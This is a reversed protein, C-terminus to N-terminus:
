QDIGGQGVPVAAPEEDGGVELIRLERGQATAEKQRIETEVIDLTRKTEDLEAARAFNRNQVFTTWLGLLLTLGFIGGSLLIREM